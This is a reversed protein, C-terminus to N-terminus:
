DDALYTDTERFTASWRRKEWGVSPIALIPRYLRAEQPACIMATTNPATSPSLILVSPRTGGRCDTWWSRHTAAEGSNNTGLILNAPVTRARAGTGYLIRNGDDAVFEDRGSEEGLNDFGDLLFHTSMQRRRGLWLEGFQPTQAAAFVFKLRVYRAGSYRLPVAGTHKLTTLVQRATSTDPNPDFTGIVQLNVTFASDDAISLEATGSGIAGLNHGFLIAVDFDPPATGFDAMWYRTTGATAPKTLHNGKRDAGCTAPYGTASANADVLSGTANWRADILGDGPNTGILIPYGLDFDATEQAALAASSWAM